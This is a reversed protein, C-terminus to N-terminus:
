RASNECLRPGSWRDSRHVILVRKGICRALARDGITAIRHKNAQINASQFLATDSERFPLNHFM